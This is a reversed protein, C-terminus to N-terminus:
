LGVIVIAIYKSTTKDQSELEKRLSVFEKFYGGDDHCATIQTRNNLKLM